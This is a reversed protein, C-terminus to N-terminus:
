SVSVFGSVTADCTGDKLEITYPVSGPTVWPGFIAVAGAGYPEDLVLTQTTTGVKITLRGNSSSPACPLAVEDGAVRLASGTAVPITGPDVLVGSGPATATVTLDVFPPRVLDPFGDGLGVNDFLIATRPKLASALGDLHADIEDRLCVLFTPLDISSGCAPDNTFWLGGPGTSVVDVYDFAETNCATGVKADFRLAVKALSSDPQPGIRRTCSETVSERCSTPDAGDLEDLLECKLLKDACGLVLGMRKVAYTRGQVNFAKRCLRAASLEASARCTSWVPVLVLAGAVLGGLVRSRMQRPAAFVGM